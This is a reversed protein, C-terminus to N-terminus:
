KPRFKKFVRTPKGSEMKQAHKLASEGNAAAFDGNAAFVTRQAAEAVLSAYNEEGCHCSMLVIKGSTRLIDGVKGWFRIGAAVLEARETCATGKKVRWPQNGTGNRDLNPGDCIGAHSIVMVTKVGSHDDWSFAGGRDRELTVGIPARSPATAKLVVARNKYLELKLKRAVALFSRHAHGQNPVILIADTRTSTKKRPRDRPPPASRSRVLILVQRDGVRVPGSSRKTVPAGRRIKAVEATSAGLQVLRTRLEDLVSHARKNAHTELNRTGVAHGIVDIRTTVSLAPVEHDGSLLREAIRRITQKQSPTLGHQAFGFGTISFEVVASM